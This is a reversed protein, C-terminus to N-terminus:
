EGLLAGASAASAARSVGTLLARGPYVLLWGLVSVGDAPVVRLEAVCGLLALWRAVPSVFLGSM